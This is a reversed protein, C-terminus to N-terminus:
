VTCRLKSESGIFRCLCYRDDIDMLVRLVTELNYHSRCQPILCLLYSLCQNQETRSSEPQADSLYSSRGFRSIEVWSNPHALSFKYLKVQAWAITVPICRMDSATATVKTIALRVFCTAPYQGSKYTSTFCSESM